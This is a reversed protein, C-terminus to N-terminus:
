RNLKLSKIKGYTEGYGDFLGAQAWVKPRVRDITVDAWQIGGEPYSLAVYSKGESSGIAVQFTNHQFKPPKVARFM